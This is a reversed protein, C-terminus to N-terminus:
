VHVILVDSNFWCYGGVLSSKLGERFTPNLIWGPMGGVVPQQSWLRLNSLTEVIEQYDVRLLLSAHNDVSM